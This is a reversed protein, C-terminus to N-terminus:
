AGRADTIERRRGSGHSHTQPRSSPGQSPFHTPGAEDLVEPHTRTGCVTPPQLVVQHMHVPLIKPAHGFWFPLLSLSFIALSGAQDPVYGQTTYATRWRPKCSTHLLYTRRRNRATRLFAASDHVFFTAQSLSNVRAAQTRGRGFSSSLSGLQM